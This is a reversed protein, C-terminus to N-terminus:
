APTSVSPSARGSVDDGPGDHSPAGQHPRRTRRVHAARRRSPPQAAPEENAAFVIRQCHPCFALKPTRRLELCLHAPVQMHCGQCTERSIAVVAIGGRHAFVREYEYLVFPRIGATLAIREERAACLVAQTAAIRDLLVATARRREEEQLLAAEDARQLAAAEEALQAEVAHLEEEVAAQRAELLTRERHLHENAEGGTRRRRERRKNERLQAKIQDLQAALADQAQAAAALRDCWTQREQAAVLAEEKVAALSARLRDLTQVAERIRQDCAQLALLRPLTDTM